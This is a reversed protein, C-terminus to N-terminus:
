IPLCELLALSMSTTNRERLLYIHDNMGKRDVVPTNKGSINYHSWEPHEQISKEIEKVVEVVIDSLSMDMTCIAKSLHETLLGCSNPKAYAFHGPFAASVFMSNRPLNINGPTCTTISSNATDVCCTDFVFVKPTELTDFPYFVDDLELNGHATTISNHMGHGTYYIVIRKLEKHHKVVAAIVRLAEKLQDSGVDALHHIGFGLTRLSKEMKSVGVKVGPLPGFMKSDMPATCSILIALQPLCEQIAAEVERKM